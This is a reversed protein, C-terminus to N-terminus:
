SIDRHVVNFDVVGRGDFLNPASLGIGGLYSQNITGLADVRLTLRGGLLDARTYRPRLAFGSGPVITGFGIGFGDLEGTMLRYPISHEIAVLRAEAKPPEEPTLNAEKAARASEIMSTRTETQGYILGWAGLCLAITKIMSERGRGEDLRSFAHRYGFRLPKNDVAQSASEGIRFDVRP